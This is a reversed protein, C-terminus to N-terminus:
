ENNILHKHDITNKIPINYIAEKMVKVIKCIM